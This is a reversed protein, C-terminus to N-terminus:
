NALANYVLTATFGCWAAKNEAESWLRDESAKSAATLPPTFGVDHKTAWAGVQNVLETSAGCRAVLFEARGLTGSAIRTTVSQSQAVASAIATSIIIGSILAKLYQM